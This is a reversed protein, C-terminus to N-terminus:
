QQRQILDLLTIRPQGPVEVWGVAGPPIVVSVGGAGGTVVPARTTGLTEAPIFYDCTSKDSFDEGVYFARPPTLHSVHLVNSEWLIMVEIASVHAVEVEDPNVDPGSKVMSYSFGSGSGDM